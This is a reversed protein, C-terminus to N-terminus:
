KSGKAARARIKDAVDVVLDNPIPVTLNYQSVRWRGDGWLLAGSGRCEGLKANQLREDFWAVRARPGLTVHRETVTYTWGKGEAFHPAAYAKFEALSWRETADTGLFVADPTYLAFYADGDAKAASAHLADLTQEVQAVTGGSTQEM